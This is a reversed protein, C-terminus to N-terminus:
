SNRPGAIRRCNKSLYTKSLFPVSTHYYNYGPYGPVRYGPAVLSLIATLRLIIIATILYLVFHKRPFVQGPVLLSCFSTRSHLVRTGPCGVPVVTAPTLVQWGSPRQQYSCKTTTTTGSLVPTGISLAHISEKNFSYFEVRTIAARGTSVRTSGQDSHFECKVIFLQGSIISPGFACRGQTMQRECSSSVCLGREGCNTSTRTRVSGGCRKLQGNMKEQLMGIRSRKRPASSTAADDGTWPLQPALTTGPFSHSLTRWAGAPPLQCGAVSSARPVSAYPLGDSSACAHDMSYAELFGSRIMNALPFQSLQITMSGETMVVSFGVSAVGALQTKPFWIKCSHFMKSHDRPARGFEGILITLLGSPQPSAQSGNMEM